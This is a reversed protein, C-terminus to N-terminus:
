PEHHLELGSNEWIGDLPGGPLTQGVPIWDAGNCPECNPDNCCITLGDQTKLHTM